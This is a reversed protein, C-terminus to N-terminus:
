FQAMKPSAESQDALVLICLLSFLEGCTEVHNDNISNVFLYRSIDIREAIKRRNKQLKERAWPSPSLRFPRKNKTEDEEVVEVMLM